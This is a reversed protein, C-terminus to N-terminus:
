VTCKVSCWSDMSSIDVRWSELPVTWHAQCKTNLKFLHTALCREPIRGMINPIYFSFIFITQKKNPSHNFIIGGQYDWFERLKVEPMTMTKLDGQPFLKAGCATLIQILPTALPALPAHAGPPLKLPRWILIVKLFNPSVMICVSFSKSLKSMFLLFKSASRACEM